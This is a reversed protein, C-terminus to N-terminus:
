NEHKRTLDHTLSWMLIHAFLLLRPSSPPPFAGFNPSGGTLHPPPCLLTNNLLLFSFPLASKWGRREGEIQQEVSSGAWRVSGM